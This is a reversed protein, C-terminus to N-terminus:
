VETDDGVGRIKKWGKKISKHIKDKYNEAWEVGFVALVWVVIYLIFLGVWLPWCFVCPPCYALNM